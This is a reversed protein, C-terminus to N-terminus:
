SNTQQSDNGSLLKVANPLLETIVESLVRPRYTPEGQDTERPKKIQYFHRTTSTGTTCRIDLDDKGEPRLEIVEDPRV